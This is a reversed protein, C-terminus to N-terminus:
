KRLRKRRWARYGGERCYECTRGNAQNWPTWCDCKEPVDDLRFKDDRSTIWSNYRPWEVEAAEWREHDLHQACDRRRRRPLKQKYWRESTSHACTSFPRKKYSRSM